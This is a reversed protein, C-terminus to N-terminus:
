RQVVGCNARFERFSILQEFRKVELKKRLRTGVPHREPHYGLRVLADYVQQLLVKNKNSFQFNYTYTPLHVNLSGEAEFLGRLAGILYTDDTWIWAPIGIIDRSRNGSIIGLRQSITKQYLSVKVCNHGRQKVITPMKGFVKYFLYATYDILKPYKTNLTVTLRETRPFVEIHGDGLVLGILVALDYSYVLNEPHKLNGLRFQEDRWAKFNDLKKAKMTESTKLVSADTDKTKGKNWPNSRDYILAPWLSNMPTNYPLCENVM